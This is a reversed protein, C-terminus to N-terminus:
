VCARARSPLAVHETVEVLDESRATLRTSRTSGSTINSTPGNLERHPSSQPATSRAGPLVRDSAVTTKTTALKNAVATKGRVGGKPLTRNTPSPPSLIAAAVVAATRRPRTSAGEASLETEFEESAQDAAVASLSPAAPFARKGRGRSRTNDRASIAAAAAEAAAVGAAALAATEEELRRWDEDGAAAGRQRRTRGADRETSLDADARMPPSWFISQTTLRTRLPVLM